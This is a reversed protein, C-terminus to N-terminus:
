AKRFLPAVVVMVFGVAIVAVVLPVIFLPAFIIYGLGESGLWLAMCALAAIAVAPSALIVWEGWRAWFIRTDQDADHGFKPSPKATSVPSWLHSFLASAILGLAFGVVPGVFFGAIQWGNSSSNNALEAGSYFGGIVGAVILGVQVTAFGAKSWITKLRHMIRVAGSLSVGLIAKRRKYLTAMVAPPLSIASLALVVISILAFIEPLNPGFNAFLILMLVSAALSSLGIRWCWSHWDHLLVAFIIRQRHKVALVAIGVPVAFVLALALIVVLFGFVYKIFPMVALVIFLGCYVRKTFSLEKIWNKFIRTDM